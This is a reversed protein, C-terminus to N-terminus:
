CRVRRCRFVMSEIGLRWLSCAVDEFHLRGHAGVAECASEPTIRCRRAAFLDDV